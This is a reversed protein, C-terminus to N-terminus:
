HSTGDFEALVAFLEMGKNNTGYTADMALEKVHSSLVSDNIYFALGRVNSAVYSASHIDLRGSLLCQASLFSDSYRDVLFTGPHTGRPVKVVEDDLICAPDDVLRVLDNYGCIWFISMASGIM